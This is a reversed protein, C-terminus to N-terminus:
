ITSLEQPVPGWESTDHCLAYASLVERHTHASM